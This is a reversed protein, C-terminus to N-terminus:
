AAVAATPPFEVMPDQLKVTVTEYLEKAMRIALPKTVAVEIHHGTSLEIVVTATNLLSSHGVSIIKGSFSM